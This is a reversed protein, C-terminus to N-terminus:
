IENGCENLQGLVIVLVDTMIECLSPCNHSSELIFDLEKFRSKQGATWDFGNILRLQYVLKKLLGTYRVWTLEFVSRISGAYFDISIYIKIESYKHGTGIDLRVM